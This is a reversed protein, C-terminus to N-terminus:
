QKQLCEEKQWSDAREKAGYWKEAAAHQVAAEIAKKMKDGEEFVEEHNKCSCLLHAEFYGYYYEYSKKM